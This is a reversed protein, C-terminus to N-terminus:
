RQRRAVIVSAPSTSTLIMLNLKGGVTLRYADGSGNVVFKGCKLGCFGSGIMGDLGLRGLQVYGERDIRLETGQVINSRALNDKESWVQEVVWRGSLEDVMRSSFHWVCLLFVVGALVIASLFARDTLRM